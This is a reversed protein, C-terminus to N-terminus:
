SPEAQWSSSWSSSWQRAHSCLHPPPHPMRTRQALLCCPRHGVEIKNLKLVLDEVEAQTMPDRQVYWVVVMTHLPTEDANCHCSHFNGWERGSAAVLSCMRWRVMHCACAVGHACMHTCHARVPDGTRVSSADRRVRDGRRFPRSLFNGVAGLGLVMRSGSREPPPLPQSSTGFSAAAGSPPVAAVPQTTKAVRTSSISSGRSHLGRM